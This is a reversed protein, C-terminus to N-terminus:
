KRQYFPKDAQAFIYIEQKKGIEVEDPSARELV